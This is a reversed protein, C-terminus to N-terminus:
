SNTDQLWRLLRKLSKDKTVPPTWDPELVSKFEQQAAMVALYALESRTPTPERAFVLTEGKLRARPRDPLLSVASRTWSGSVRGDALGRYMRRLDWFTGMAKVSPTLLVTADAYAPEVSMASATPRIWESWPIASFEALHHYRVNSV